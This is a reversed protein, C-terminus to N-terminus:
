HLIREHFSSEACYLELVEEIIQDDLKNISALAALVLDQVDYPIHTQELFMCAQTAEHSKLLKCLVTAQASIVPNM